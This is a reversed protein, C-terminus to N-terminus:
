SVKVKLLSETKGVVYKSNPDRLVFGEGNEKILTELSEELYKNSKCLQHHVIKAHPPLQLGKLQEHRSEFNGESTPLDFIHFTISKWDKTKLVGLLQPFMGRGMWLEGDLPVVPFGETFESPAGLLKGNRSWLKNGDWYARVGDMKESMWRILYTTISTM